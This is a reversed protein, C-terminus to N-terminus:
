PGPYHRSGPPGIQVPVKLPKAHGFRLEIEFSSGVMLPQTLDMLMLHMGGPELTAAGKAGILIEPVHVMTVVQDQKKTQHLEVRSAASTQAAILKDPKDGQNTLTLFVAGVTANPATARAWVAQATILSSDAARSLSPLGLFVALLVFAHCALSRPSNIMTMM